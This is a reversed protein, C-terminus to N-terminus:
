AAEAIKMFGPAETGSLLLQDAPDLEDSSAILISDRLDPEPEVGGGVGRRRAAVAPVGLGLGLM